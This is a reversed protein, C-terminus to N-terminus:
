IVQNILDIQDMSDRVFSQIQLIYLERYEEETDLAADSESKAILNIQQKLIKMREKTQKDRKFKAIKMNRNMEASVNQNEVRANWELVEENPLIGVNIMHKIFDSFM